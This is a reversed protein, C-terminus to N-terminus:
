VGKEREVIRGRWRHQSAAGLRVARCGSGCAHLLTRVHHYGSLDVGFVVGDNEFDLDCVSLTFEAFGYLEVSIEARYDIRLVPSTWFM